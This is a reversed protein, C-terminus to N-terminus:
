FNKTRNFFSIRSSNKFQIKESSLIKKAIQFVGEGKIQANDLVLPSYCAGYYVNRDKRNGAAKACFIAGSKRERVM